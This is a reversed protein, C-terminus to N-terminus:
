SKIRPLRKDAKSCGTGPGSVQQSEYYTLTQYKKVPNMWSLSGVAM